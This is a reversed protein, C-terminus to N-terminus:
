AFYARGTVICIDFSDFCYIQTASELGCCGGEGDKVLFKLGLLERGFRRCSRNNWGEFYDLLFSSSGSSLSAVILQTVLFTVRRIRCFLGSCLPTRVCPTQKNCHPAHSHCNGRLAVVILQVGTFVFSMRKKGQLSAQHHAHNQNECHCCLVFTSQGLQQTLLALFATATEGQSRFM